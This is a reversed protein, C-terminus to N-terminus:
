QSRAVTSMLWKRPDVCDEHTVEDGTAEVDIVAICVDNMGGKETSPYVDRGLQHPQRGLYERVADAPDLLPYYYPNNDERMWDFCDYCVLVYRHGGVRAKGVHDRIESMIM